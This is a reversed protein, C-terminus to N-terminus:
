GLETRAEMARDPDFGDLGRAGRLRRVDDGFGAFIIEYCIMFPEGHHIDMGWRITVAAGVVWSLIAVFGVMTGPQRVLRGAHDPAM